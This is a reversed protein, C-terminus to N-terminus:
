CPLLNLLAPYVVWHTMGPAEFRALMKPSTESSWLGHLKMYQMVTTRPLLRSKNRDAYSLAFKLSQLKEATPRSTDALMKRQMNASRHPQADRCSPIMEYALKEPLLSGPFPQPMRNILPNGVDPQDAAHMAHKPILQKVTIGPYEPGPAPRAATPAVSYSRLAALVDEVRIRGDIDPTCQRILVYVQDDNIPLSVQQCLSMVDSKRVLLSGAVQAQKKAVKMLRPELTAIARDYAAVEINQPTDSHTFQPHYTSLAYSHPRSPILEDPPRLRGTPETIYNVM